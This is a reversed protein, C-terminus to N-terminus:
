ERSKGFSQVNWNKLAIDFSNEQSWFMLNSHFNTVIIILYSKSFIYFIYFRDSRKDNWTCAVSETLTRLGKLSCNQSDFPFYKTDIGCSTQYLAAPQWEVTGNDHITVPFITTLNIFRYQWYKIPILWNLKKLIVILYSQHM